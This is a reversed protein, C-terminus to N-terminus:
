NCGTTLVDVVMDPLPDVVVDVDEVVVVVVVEVEEIVVGMRVVAVVVNVVEDVDVIKQGNTSVSRIKTM